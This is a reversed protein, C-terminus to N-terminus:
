GQLAERLRQVFVDLFTDYDDQEKHAELSAISGHLTQVNDPSAPDWAFLKFTDAGWFFETNFQYGTTTELDAVFDSLIENCETLRKEAFEDLKEDALNLGKKLGGVIWELILNVLWTEGPFTGPILQAIIRSTWASTILQKLLGGDAEKILAETLDNGFQVSEDRAIAWVEARYHKIIGDKNIDIKSLHEVIPVVVSWIGKLYESKGPEFTDILFKIADEKFTGWDM